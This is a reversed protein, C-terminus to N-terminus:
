MAQHRLLFMTAQAIGDAQVSPTAAKARALRELHDTCEQQQKVPLRHFAESLRKALADIMTNESAVTASSLSVMGAQVQQALDIRRKETMQGQGRDLKVPQVVGTGQHRMEGEFIGDADLAFTVSFKHTGKPEPTINAIVVEGLKFNLSAKPNEGQYIPVFVSTQNDESTTYNERVVRHPIVTDKPILADYLDGKLGIGLTHSVVDRIDRHEAAPKAAPDIVRDVGDRIEPGTSPLKAKALWGAGIAVVEDPNV